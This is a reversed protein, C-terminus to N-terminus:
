YAGRCTLVAPVTAVILKLDLWLSRNEVYEMDLKVQEEFPLAGRGRIQWLCTLGPRVALRLLDTPSYHEVESAIAPRPGVLSMDGWLVNWLQPLEDLSSKRIFGGIWTIRPDKKIKFTRPDAHDNSDMLEAKLRDANPVMSRFKFCRFPRGYRGIRTQVFFPSTGDTLYVLAAITTMMPALLLLAVSSLAIDMLRKLLEYTARHERSWSQTQLVERVAVSKAEDGRYNDAAKAVDRRFAALQARPHRRKIVNTGAQKVRGFKPPSNPKNGIGTDVITDVMTEAVLDVLTEDLARDGLPHSVDTTRPISASVHSEPERLTALPASNSISM